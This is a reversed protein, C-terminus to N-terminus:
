YSIIIISLHYSVLLGVYISEFTRSNVPNRWRCIEFVAMAIEM